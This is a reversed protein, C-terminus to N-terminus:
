YVHVDHTKHGDTYTYMLSRGAVTGGVPASMYSFSVVFDTQVFLRKM